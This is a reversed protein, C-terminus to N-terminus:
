LYRVDRAVASGHRQISRKIASNVRREALPDSPRVHVAAGVDTDLPSRMYSKTSDNDQFRPGTESARDASSHQGFASSLMPSAYFDAVSGGQSDRDSCQPDLDADM